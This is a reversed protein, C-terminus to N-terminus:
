SSRRTQGPRARTSAACADLVVQVDPPVDRGAAERERQTAGCWRPWSATPAARSGPSRRSRSAPSCASSCARAGPTTTWAPRTRAWRPPSSAPTTPACPTSSCTPATSTTPHAPCPTCSRASRTTTATATSRACSPWSRRRTPSQAATRVLSVRVADELLVDDAGALPGRGTKRAAAPFTRGLRSPDEAVEATLADLQAQARDDLAQRITDDAALPRIETVAHSRGQRPRRPPGPLRAPRRDTARRGHAGRPLPPAARRQRPRHLRHGAPRALVADLDLKGTGLELHEHVDRVMDDVQVNGILPGAVAISAEPSRPENCVLHGLDLTLRLHEPEGLRRRLELAEDVTDVHM